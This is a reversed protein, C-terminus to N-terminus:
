SLMWLARQSLANKMNEMLRFRHSDHFSEMKIVGKSFLKYLLCVHAM